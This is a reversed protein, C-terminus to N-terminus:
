ENSNNIESDDVEIQINKEHLKQYICILLLDRIESWNTGDPFLYNVYDTLTILPERNDKKYNIEIQKILISRLEYSKSTKIKGIIKGINDNNDIIFNSLREILELTKINMNRINKQYYCTIKFDLSQDSKLPDEWSLILKLISQGRILFDFILNIWKYSVQSEQYKLEYDGKENNISNKFEKKGEEDLKKNWDKFIPKKKWNDLEGHDVIFCARGTKDKKFGFTCLDIDLSENQKLYKYYNKEILSIEKVKEIYKSEKINFNAKHHIYKVYNALVFNHWQEKFKAQQCYRYFNIIGLPLKYIDMHPNVSVNTYHYLTLALKQEDDKVIKSNTIIDDAFAFIANIPNSYKSRLSFSFQVKQLNNKLNREAFDETVKDQNSTIIAMKDYILISSLPVFFMRIIIEKSFFLGPEMNHYFNLFSSAGTLMSNDRGAKFLNTEKGLIRCCGRKHYATEELLSLFYKKTEQRKREATKYSPQTITSNLYFIHLGSHWRDIYLNTAKNIIEFLDLNPYRRALGQLAYGGADAFPDGTPCTLWEYNITKYTQKM